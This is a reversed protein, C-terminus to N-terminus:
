SFQCDHFVYKGILIYHEPHKAIDESMPHLEAQKNQVMSWFTGWDIKSGYEDVIVKRKTWQMMSKKDSYFKEGNLQFSFKWGMSSKGLHIEEFPRKCGKCPKKTRIYYNTGM